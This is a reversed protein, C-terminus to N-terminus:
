TVRPLRFKPPLEFQKRCAKANALSQHAVFEVFFAIFVLHV